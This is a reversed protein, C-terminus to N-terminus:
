SERESDGKRRRKERAKSAREKEYARSEEERAKRDENGEAEEARKRRERAEKQYVGKVKNYALAYSIGQKLGEISEIDAQSVHGKEKAKEYSKLRSEIGRKYEEAADALREHFEETMAKAKERAESATLHEAPETMEGTRPNTKYTGPGYLALGQAKAAGASLDHLAKAVRENKNAGTAGAVLHAMGVTTGLTVGKVANSVADASEKMRNTTNSISFGYLPNMLNQRINSDPPGYLRNHQKAYAWSFQDFSLRSAKKIEGLSEDIAKLRKQLNGKDRMIIMRDIENKSLAFRAKLQNIEGQLVEKENLMDIKKYSTVEAKKREEAYRKGGEAWYRASSFFFPATAMKIFKGSTMSQRNKLESESIVETGPKHLDSGSNYRDYLFRAEADIKALKAVRKQDSGPKFKIVGIDRGGFTIKKKGGFMSYLYNDPSEKGFYKNVVKKLTARGRPNTPTGRIDLFGRLSYGSRALNSSGGGSGVGGGLLSSVGFINFISFGRSAGAAAVILIIIVMIPILANINGISLLISFLTYVLSFLM